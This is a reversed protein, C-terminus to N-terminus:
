GSIMHLPVIDPAIANDAHDTGSGCTIKSQFHLGKNERQAQRNLMWGDCVQQQFQLRYSQLVLGSVVPLFVSGM